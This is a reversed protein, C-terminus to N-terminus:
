AQVRPGSKGGESKKEEEGKKSEAGVDMRKRSEQGGGIEIRRAKQAERKPITLSLVGENMEAKINEQDIHRPLAFSRTFRGYSREIRRYGEREEDHELKREGSLTLLNDTLDIELEEPKVGPLEARLEIQDDSEFIDVMPSFQRELDRGGFVHGTLREMEEFPNWRTLM